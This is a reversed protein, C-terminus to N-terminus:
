NNNQKKLTCLMIDLSDSLILTTKDKIEFKRVQELNKLFVTETNMDPCMMMSVGLRGFSLEGGKVNYEGFFVNCGANGSVRASDQFTIYPTNTKIDLEVGNETRMEDVKWTTNKIERDQSPKCSVSLLLSLISIASLKLFNREM